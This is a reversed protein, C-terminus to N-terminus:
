DNYNKNQDFISATFYQLASGLKQANQSRKSHTFYNFRRERFM